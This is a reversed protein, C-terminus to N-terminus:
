IFFYKTTKKKYDSASISSYITVRGFSLRESDSKSKDFYVKSTRYALANWCNGFSSFMKDPVHFLHSNRNSLYINDPRQYALKNKLSYPKHFFETFAIGSPFNIELLVNTDTNNERCVELVLFKGGGESM